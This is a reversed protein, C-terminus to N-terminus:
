SGDGKNFRDLGEGGELSELVTPQLDRDSHITEDVEEESFVAEADEIYVPKSKHSREYSREITPTWLLEKWVQRLISRTYPVNNISETTAWTWLASILAWLLLLAALPPVLVVLPNVDDRAYIFGNDHNRIQWNIDGDAVATNRRKQQVDIVEGQWVHVRYEDTKKVYKTYLPAKRLTQDTEPDCLHIGRGGSARLLTRAIVTTGDTLWGDAVDRSTTSEPCPIHAESFVEVCLLKNSAIRVKEPENIYHGNFRRESRGWNIIFNFDGHKRVQQATTRLIGCKRGLARAGGSWTKYPEIRIKM